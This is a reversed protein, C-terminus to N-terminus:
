LKRSLLLLSTSLPLKVGEFLAILNNTVVENQRLRPTVIEVLALVHVHVM